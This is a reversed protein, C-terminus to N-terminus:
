ELGRSARSARLGRSRQGAGAVSRRRQHRRSTVMETTPELCQARPVGVIGAQPGVSVSSRAPPSATYCRCEQRNQFLVSKNRLQAPRGHAGTYRACQETRGLHDDADPFNTRHHQHCLRSEHRYSQLANCLNGDDQRVAPALSIRAVACRNKRHRDGAALGVHYYQNEVTGNM